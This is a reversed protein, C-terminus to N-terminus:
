KQTKRSQQGSMRYLTYGFMGFTGFLFTFYAAAVPTSTKVGEVNAYLKGDSLYAKVTGGEPYGALGHVNHLEQEKGEYEVMVEYFTTRNGTTKNVLSRSGASVVTAKVEEYEPNSRDMAFWLFVTAVLCLVTLLWLVSIKIKM